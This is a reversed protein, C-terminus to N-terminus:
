MEIHHLHPISVEAIAVVGDKTIFITSTQVEGGTTTVGLDWPVKLTSIIDPPCDYNVYVAENASLKM